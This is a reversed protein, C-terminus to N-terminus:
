VLLVVQHWKELAYKFLLQSEYLKACIWGFDSAHTNGHLSLLLSETENSRLEIRIKCDSGFAPVQCTWTWQNYTNNAPSTTVKADVYVIDMSEVITQLAAEVSQQTNANWPAVLPLQLVQKPLTVAPTTQTTTLTTVEPKDRRTASHSHLAQIQDIGVPLVFGTARTSGSLLLTLQTVIATSCTVVIRM